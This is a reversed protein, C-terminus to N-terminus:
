AGERTLRICKIAEDKAAFRYKYPEDGRLMDFSTRGAQIAQEINQALLVLGASLEREGPDFGSNYLYIRDGYDLSFNAAVPHDDVRMISLDLWGRDLMERSMNKFFALRSENWFDAKEPQSLKHLHVFEEIDNELEKEALTRHFELGPEMNAKRIKRRLEREERQGLMGTYDDWSDPLTIVPCVEEPEITATNESASFYAVTPSDEPTSHLVLEKWPPAASSNLYELLAGWAEFHAGERAIIDLYDTLDEGGIFRMVGDERLTLPAIALLPEGQRGITCIHIEGSGLHKWWTALWAPDYFPHAHSRAEMLSRWEPALRTFDEEASHVCVQLPEKGSPSPATYCPTPTSCSSSM